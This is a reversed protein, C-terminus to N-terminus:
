IEIGRIKFELCRNSVEFYDDSWKIDGVNMELRQKFLVSMFFAM